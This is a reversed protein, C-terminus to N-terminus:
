LFVLLHPLLLLFHFELLPALVMVVLTACHAHYKALKKLHKDFYNELLHSTKGCHKCPESSTGKPASTRQSAALVSRPMSISSTSM